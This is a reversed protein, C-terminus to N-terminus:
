KSKSIKVLREKALTVQRRAEEDAMENFTNGSHGKIKEVAVKTGLKNALRLAKDLRLWLDSNKVDKQKTTKFGNLKWKTLWDRNIANVVYASDSSVEIKQYHEHGVEKHIL